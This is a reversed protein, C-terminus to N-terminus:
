SRSGKSHRALRRIGEEITDEDSALSIRVMGRGGPGFAEGPAVTVKETEVLSSAFAVTDDAPVEVMMYFAGSPEIAAMGEEALRSMALGSRLRYAAVMDDVCSQDGRLAAEAAKQSVAAACSVSNEVVRGVMAVVEPPGTVYGVRWGTMAYTKSVSFVSVVRGTQDLTAPSVHAEDFTIAEYCEDSVLYVDHEECLELLATLVSEGWVAGTPNGPTNAVLMKVNPNSALMSSLADFDPDFRKDPLLPYREIKLGTLAAITGYNPWGPDPALVVDGPNALARYVSFLAHGGGATVVVEDAGVEIRNFGTIKDAMAARVEPLGQSPTYHTYGDRAAKAAAEVIHEPTPFNPDGVELRLVGPTRFAIDMVARVGSRQLSAISESVPKM